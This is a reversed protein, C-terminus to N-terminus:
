GEGLDKGGMGRYLTMAKQKKSLKVLGSSILHLTTVFENKKRERLVSNYKEFMPGTYLRLCKIEEDMLRMEDFDHQTIELLSLAEQKIQDLTKCKRQIPGNPFKKLDLAISQDFDDKFNEFVHEFELKPNTKVGYNRSVFTTKDFHDKAIGSGLDREPKGIMDELGKIFADVSGFKFEGQFKGKHEEFKALGTLTENVSETILRALKEIVKNQKQSLVKNITDVQILKMTEIASDKPAKVGECVGESVFQILDKFLPNRNHFLSLLWDNFSVEM